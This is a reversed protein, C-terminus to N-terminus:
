IQCRQRLQGDHCFQSYGCLRQDNKEGNLFEYSGNRHQITCSKQHILDPFILDESLHGEFDDGPCNSFEPRTCGNVLNNFITGEPCTFESIFDIFQRYFCYIVSFLQNKDQINIDMLVSGIHLALIELIIDSQAEQM